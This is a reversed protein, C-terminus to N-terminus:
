CEDAKGLLIFFFESSECEKSFDSPHLIRWISILIVIPFTSSTTQYKRVEWPFNARKKKYTLGSMKWKMYIWLPINSRSIWLPQPFLIKRTMKWRRITEFTSFVVPFMDYFKNYSITSSSELFFYFTLFLFFIM